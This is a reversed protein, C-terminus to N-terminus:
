TDKDGPNILDALGAFPRTDEDRMPATGPEAHIHQGLEAGEKRPYQPLHLAVSEVMVAFPDIEDGLPDVHDDENMEVEEAEPTQFGALFLREVETDVRTTVPDLSVVCPQIVTFGLKGKLTWDRKGRASIEGDFRLKRLGDVGLEQAIAALAKADPALAFRTPRNQPLDAVRLATPSSSPDSSM